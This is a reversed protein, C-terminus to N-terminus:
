YWRIIVSIVIWRAMSLFYDIPFPFFVFFFVSLIAILLISVAVVLKDTTIRQYKRILPALLKLSGKFFHSISGAFTLETKHARM